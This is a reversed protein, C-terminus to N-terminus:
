CEFTPRLEPWLQLSERRSSPGNAFDHISGMLPPITPGHRAMPADHPRTVRDPAAIRGIASHATVVIGVVLKSM